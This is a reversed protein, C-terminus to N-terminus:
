AFLENVYVVSVNFFRYMGVPDKLHGLHIPCVLEEPLHAFVIGDDEEASM